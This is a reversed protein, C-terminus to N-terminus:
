WLRCDGVMVSGCAAVLESERDERHAHLWQEFQDIIV